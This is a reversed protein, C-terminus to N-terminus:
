QNPVNYTVNLETEAANGDTDTAVIAIYNDGEDLSITATFSGDSGAIVDKDNVSVEAKPSTIGKVTLSSSTVVANNAPEIVNLKIENAKSVPNPTPTKNLNSFSDVPSTEPQIQGEISTTGTSNGPVNTNIKKQNQQALYYVGGALILLVVVIIPVTKKM